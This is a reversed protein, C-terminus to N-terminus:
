VSPSQSQHEHHAPPSELLSDQDPAASLQDQTLLSPTWTDGTPAALPPFTDEMRASRENEEDRSETHGGDGASNRAPINELIPQCKWLVFLGPASALTSFIFYQTWGLNQALWGSPAQAFIRTLGMISSLLAYQTASFRRNIVSGMFTTYSATGLGSALYDVCIAAALASTSAVGTATVEQFLWAFSLSAVAQLIGFIWLTRQIGFYVVAVGGILGGAITASLGIGKAVAGIQTKTYGLELYMPTAMATALDAGVKYLLFFAIAWFAKGQLSGQNSFFDRLPHWVADRFNQPPHGVIQPEPSLLTTLGGVIMAGAMIMYVASWPLHDALILAGAGALLMGLRYGLVYLQTGLGYSEPPLIEIQYADISIDQTASLFAVLFASLTLFTLNENPSFVSMAALGIALGIQTILLWGRRRGLFPPVLWDLIPAWLFKLSYPLSLFALLGLSTLDMGGEKCWAQLTAGTLVFPLGASFGLCFIILMRRDTLLLRLKKM